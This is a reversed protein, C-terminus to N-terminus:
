LHTCSRFDGSMMAADGTTAMLADFRNNRELLKLVGHKSLGVIAAAIPLAALLGSDDAVGLPAVAKSSATRGVERGSLRHSAAQM